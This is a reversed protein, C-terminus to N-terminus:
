FMIPRLFSFFDQFVVQEHSNLKVVFEGQKSNVKRTTTIPFGAIGKTHDEGSRGRVPHRKHSNNGCGFRIQEPKGFRGTGPVM